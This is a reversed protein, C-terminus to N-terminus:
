RPWPRDAANCKNGIARAIPRLIRRADWGSGCQVLERQTICLMGLGVLEEQLLEIEAQM